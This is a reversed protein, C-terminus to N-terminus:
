PRPPLQRRDNSASAANLSAALDAPYTSLYSPLPAEGGRLANM